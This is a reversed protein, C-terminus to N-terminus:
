RRGVRFEGAVGAFTPVRFPPGPRSERPACLGALQLHYLSSMREAPQPPLSGWVSHSAPNPGEGPNPDLLRERVTKRFVGSFPHFPHKQRM